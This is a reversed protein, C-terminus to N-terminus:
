CIRVHLIIIINYTIKHIYDTYMVVLQLQSAPRQILVGCRYNYVKVTIQEKTKHKNAFISTTSM